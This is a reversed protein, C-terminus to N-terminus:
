ERVCMSLRVDRASGKLGGTNAWTAQKGTIRSYFADYLAFLFVPSFSFWTEQGRQSDLNNIATSALRNLYGRLLIWPVMCCFVVNSNLYFPLTGSVMM